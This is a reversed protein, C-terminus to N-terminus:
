QSPTEVKNQWLSDVAPKFHPRHQAPIRSVLDHEFQTIIVMAEALVVRGRETLHLAHSKGDLPERYLLDAKELRGLLPVMNARQIDLKRGLASATLDPNANILMMASVDAHRLNLPSLRCALEAIM